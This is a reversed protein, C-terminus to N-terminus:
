LNEYIDEGSAGLDTDPQEYFDEGTPQTRPSGCMPEYVGTEAGPCEPVTQPQDVDDTAPYDISPPSWRHTTASYQIFIILIMGFVIWIASLFVVLCSLTGTSYHNLPILVGLGIGAIALLILLILYIPSRVRDWNWM